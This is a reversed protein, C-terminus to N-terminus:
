MQETFVILRQNFESTGPKVKGTCTILNLGPKDAAVPSLAAQMDVNDADYVQSKVVKYNLTVGDGRVVQMSDGPRLTKLGYFVGNTTWSSVHGDILMAGKQGPLSSGNYWGADFVNSPTQLAGTKDIGLSKVRAKVGLKSIVLYRPQNAPVTYSAVAAATPKDTAPAAPDTAGSADAKNAEKTLVQAQAEVMRNARWGNFTLMGGAVFISCAMAATLVSKAQLRRRRRASQRRVADRRLTSSRSQRPLSPVPVGAHRKQKPAQGGRVTVYRRRDRPLVMDSAFDHRSIARRSSTRRMRSRLVDDGSQARSSHSM